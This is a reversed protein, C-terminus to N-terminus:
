NISLYKAITNVPPTNDDSWFRQRLFMRETQILGWWNTTGAGFIIAFCIRWFNDSANWCYPMDKIKLIWSNPSSPFYNGSQSWPHIVANNEWVYKEKWIKPSNETKTAEFITKILSPTWKRSKYYPYPKSIGNFRSFSSVTWSFLHRIWNLKM